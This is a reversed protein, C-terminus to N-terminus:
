KESFKIKRLVLALAREDGEVRIAQSTGVSLRFTTGVAIFIPFESNFLGSVRSLEVLTDGNLQIQVDAAQGPRWGEFTLRSLDRSATLWVEFKTALWSDEWYGMATSVQFVMDDNFPLGCFPSSTPVERFGVYVDRWIGNEGAPHVEISAFEGSEQMMKLVWDKDIVPADQIRDRYIDETTYGMEVVAVHRTRQFLTRLCEVGTTYGKQTMIWQVTAFTSTVDYEDTTETIYQHADSQLYRISQGKIRSLRNGWDIFNRDVDVGTSRYGHSAMGDAFFGSCCGLDMFSPQAVPDDLLKRVKGSRLAAHLIIELRAPSDDRVLEWGEMEVKYFPQYTHLDGPFPSAERVDRLLATIASNVSEEYCPECLHVPYVMGNEYIVHTASRKGCRCDVEMHERQYETKQLIKLQDASPTGVLVDLGRASASCWADVIGPKYYQAEDFVVLTGPASDKLLKVAKKTSCVHDIRFNLGPVRCGMLGGPKVNPRRTLEEHESSLFLEVKGGASERERMTKILTSTKGTAPLGTYVYITMCYVVLFIYEISFGRQYGDQIPVM